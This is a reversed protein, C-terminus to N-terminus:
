PLPAMGDRQVLQADRTFQIRLHLFRFSGVAIRQSDRAAELCRCWLHLADGTLLSGHVQAQTGQKRLLANYNGAKLLLHTYSGLAAAVTMGGVVALAALAYLAYFPVRIRRMTGGRNSAVFLTYTEPAM